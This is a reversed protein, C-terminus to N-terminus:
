LGEVFSTLPFRGKMSFDYIAKNKFYSNPYLKTEKNLLSSLIAVHIRNTLVSSSHAIVYIMKRTAQLIEKPLLTCHSTALALSIDINSEPLQINTKEVDIRYANLAGFKPTVDVKDLGSIMFAMDHAMCHNEPFRSNAALYEYTVKERACIFVNSSLSSILKQHGRVTHPLVILKRVHQNIALFKELDQYEPVLNGGGGYVVVDNEMFSTESHYISVNLDLRRFLQFTSYAILSDGANGPNPVYKIADNKVSLLLDILSSQDFNDM